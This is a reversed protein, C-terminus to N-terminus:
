GSVDQRCGLRFTVFSTRRRPQYQAGPTTPSRARWSRTQAVAAAVARRRARISFGQPADCIPATANGALLSASDLSPRLAPACDPRVSRSWSSPPTSVPAGNALVSRAGAGAPQALHHFYASRAPPAELGPHSRASLRAQMVRVLSNMRPFPSGARLQRSAEIPASPPVGGCTRPQGMSASLRLGYHPLPETRRAASVTLAARAGPPRGSGCEDSLRALLGVTV